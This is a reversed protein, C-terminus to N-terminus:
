VNEGHKETDGHSFAMPCVKALLGVEIKGDGMGKNLIYFTYVEAV